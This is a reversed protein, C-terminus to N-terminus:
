LKAKNGLQNIANGRGVAASPFREECGEFKVIPQRSQEPSYVPARGRTDFLRNM